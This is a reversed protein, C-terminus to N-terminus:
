LHQSDIAWQPNAQDINKVLGPAEFTARACVACRALLVGVGHQPACAELVFAGGSAFAHVNAIADYMFMQLALLQSFQRVSSRAFLAPLLSAM